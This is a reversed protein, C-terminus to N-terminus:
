YVGYLEGLGPTSSPAATNFTVYPVGITMAASGDYTGASGGYGQSITLAQPNPLAAPIDATNAKSPLVTNIADIQGQLYAAADAPPIDKMSELWATFDAEGSAKFEALDATIQQYFTATDLHDVLAHVIGCVDNDLRTDTILAQTIATTGAPISVEALKLDYQEETRVIAPATPSSAPAGKLVLPTITRENIDWRLVVTDKRNLVGDANDIVLTQDAPLRKFYRKNDPGMWARGEKVTVSMASGDATVAMEDSYVGDSIFSGIYAALFDMDYERDGGVDSFFGSDPTAM